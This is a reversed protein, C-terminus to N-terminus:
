ARSQENEYMSWFPVEWSVALVGESDYCEEGVEKMLQETSYPYQRIRHSDFLHEVLLLPRGSFYFDRFTAKKSRFSIFEEESVQVFLSKSVSSPRLSDDWNVGLLRVNTVPHLVTFSLPGDYWDIIYEYQWLPNSLIKGKNHKDFISTVFSQSFMFEPDADKTFREHRSRPTNESTYPHPHESASM